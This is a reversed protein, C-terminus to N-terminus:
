SDAIVGCTWILPERVSQAPPVGGPWSFQLPFAMGASGSKGFGSWAQGSETFVYPAAASYNEIMTDIVEELEVIYM